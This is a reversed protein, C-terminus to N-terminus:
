VKGCILASVEEHRGGWGDVGRRREEWGCPVSDMGGDRWEEKRGDVGCLTGLPFGGLVCVSGPALACSRVVRCVSVCM